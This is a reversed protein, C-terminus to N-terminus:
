ELQVQTIDMSFDEDIGQVHGDMFAASANVGMLAHTKTSIREGHRHTLTAISSWVGGYPLLQEALLIKEAPRHWQVRKTRSWYEPVYNVGTSQNMTYSYFYAGQGSMIGPLPKRNELNDAPCRLLKKLRDGGLNLYKAIPSDDLNRNQEWWIWDDNMQVYAAGDTPYACTPYWDHNDDCYLTIGMHIQKINSLCAVRNAAARAKSLVPLLIAILLAIIGIVVLLEVLTFGHSADCAEGGSRNKENLQQRM